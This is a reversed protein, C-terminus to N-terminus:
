DRVCRVSYGYFAKNGTGRYAATHSYALYRHWAFNSYNIRETSSWLYAYIGTGSFSSNNRYGAPLVALGSTGFAPDSDLAGNTWLPENGAMKSGTNSGTGGLEDTLTTWESDSPLHWGTPCVGQTSEATTYQMMENWQYLGGYTACNAADNNFCYKEIINNDTQNSGSNIMIGIDLNEAMWCQGGIQVTAYSKGDYIISDGCALTDANIGPGITGNIVLNGVYTGDKDYTGNMTWTGTGNNTFTISSDIQFTSGKAFTYDTSNSSPVVCDAAITIKQVIHVPPVKGTSWNAANDWDSDATGNFTNDQANLTISVALAIIITLINTYKM